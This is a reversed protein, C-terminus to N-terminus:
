PSKRRALEHFRQRYHRLGVRCAAFTIPGVLGMSLSLAYRLAHPDKSLYDTLLAPVSTATDAGGM